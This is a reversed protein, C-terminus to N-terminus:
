FQFYIFDSKVDRGLTVILFTIVILFLLNNKFKLNKPLRYSLALLLIVLLCIAFNIPGREATITFVNFSFDLKCLKRIMDNAIHFNEARFFIWAFTVLIFVISRNILTRLKPFNLLGIAKSFKM